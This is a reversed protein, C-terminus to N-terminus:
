YELLKFSIEKIEKIIPAFSRATNSHNWKLHRIPVVLRAFLIVLIHIVALVEQGAAPWGKM